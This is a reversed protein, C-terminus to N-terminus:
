LSSTIKFSHINEDDCVSLGGVLEVNDELALVVTHQNQLMYTAVDNSIFCKVCCSYVSIVFYQM